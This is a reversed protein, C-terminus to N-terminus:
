EAIAPLCGKGGIPHRRKVISPKVLCARNGWAGKSPCAVGTAILRQLTMRGVKLVEEIPHQTMARSVVQLCDSLEASADEAVAGASLAWCGAEQVKLVTPHADMARLVAGAGGSAAIAKKLGNNQWSLCFLAWCGAWQVAAIDIHQDLAALVLQVGGLSAIKAQHQASGTSMHRLVGCGAVQLLAVDSHLAMGELVAELGGSSSIDEQISASQAALQSLALCAAEQLSASSRHAIMATLVAQSARCQALRMQCDPSRSMAAALLLKCGLEQLVELQYHDEMAAVLALLAGRESLELANSAAARELALFGAIQLGASARCASMSELIESVGSVTSFLRRWTSSDEKLEATDLSGLCDKYMVRLEDCSRQAGLAESQFAQVVPPEVPSGLPSANHVDTAETVSDPEKDQVVIGTVPVSEVPKGLDEVASGKVQELALDADETTAVGECSVANHADENTSAWEEGRDDDQQFVLVSTVSAKSRRARIGRRRISGRHTSVFPMDASAGLLGQALCTRIAVRAIRPARVSCVATEPTAVGHQEREFKARKKSITQAREEARRMKLDLLEIDYDQSAM